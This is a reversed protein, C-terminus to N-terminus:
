LLLKNKWNGQYHYTSEKKWRWLVTYIYDEAINMLYDDQIEAEVECTKAVAFKAALFQYELEM